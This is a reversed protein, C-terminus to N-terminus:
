LYFSSCHARGDLLFCNLDEELSQKQNEDIGPLQSLYEMIYITLSSEDIPTSNTFARIWGYKVTSLLQHLAVEVKKRNEPEKLCKM